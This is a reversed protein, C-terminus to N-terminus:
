PAPADPLGRHPAAVALADMRAALTFDLETLGGADHTSLDVTVRNWVNCWEPHHELAEAAHAVETMFGFAAVFDPFTFERHLKGQELSWAPLAKLRSQVHEASLKPVTM